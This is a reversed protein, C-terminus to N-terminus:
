QSCVVTASLNIYLTLYRMESINPCSVGSIAVQSTLVVLLMCYTNSLARRGTQIFYIARPSLRTAFIACAFSLATNTM